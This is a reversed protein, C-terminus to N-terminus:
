GRPPGPAHPPLPKLTLSLLVGVSLVLPLVQFAFVTAYDHTFRGILSDAQREADGPGLGQLTYYDVLRLRVDGWPPRNPFITQRIADLHADARREIFIGMLNNGLFAPLVLMFNKISASSAILAPTMDEQSICIL